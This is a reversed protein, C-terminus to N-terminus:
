SRNVNKKILHHVPVVFCLIARFLYLFLCLFSANQHPSAQFHM